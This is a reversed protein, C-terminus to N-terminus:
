IAQKALLAAVEEDVVKIQVPKTLVTFQSLLPVSALLRRRPHVPPCWVGDLFQTLRGGVVLYATPGVSNEIYRLTTASFPSPSYLSSSFFTM